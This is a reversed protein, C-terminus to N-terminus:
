NPTDEDHTEARMAEGENMVVYLIEDDAAAEMAEARDETDDRAAMEELAQEMLETERMCEETETIEIDGDPFITIKEIMFPMANAITIRAQRLEEGTLIDLTGWRPVDRTPLTHAMLTLKAQVAKVCAEEAKIDATYGNITALLSDAPERAFRRILTDLKRRLQVAIAEQDALEARLAATSDNYKKEDRDDLMVANLTDHMAKEIKDLRHHKRAKCGNISVRGLSCALFKRYGDGRSAIGMRSGCEACYLLSGFLNTVKDLRRGDNMGSTRRGPKTDRSDIARNTGRWNSETIIAPYADKVTKATDKWKGGVYGGISQEGLVERSRVIQKITSQHWMAPAKRLGRGNLTPVGEKNLTQALRYYGISLLDFFLRRVIVTKPIDIDWGPPCVIKAGDPLIRLITTRRDTEIVWSPCTWSTTGRVRAHNDRSPDAKKASKVHDGIMIGASVFIRGRNAFAPENNGTTKLHRGQDRMPYPPHVGQLVDM